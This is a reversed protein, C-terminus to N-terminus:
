EAQAKAEAKCDDLDYFGWCSALEDDGPKGCHPCAQFIRYGYIEGSLYKSYTDVEAKLFGEIDETTPPESHGLAEVREQTTWICGVQSSDWTCTFPETQLAIGSHDYLYLPLIVTAHEESELHEKLDNWSEFADHRLEHGEDTLRYRRHFCVIVGLNEWERPSDPAQDREIRIIKDGQEITIITDNM